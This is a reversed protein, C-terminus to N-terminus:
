PCPLLIGPVRMLRTNCPVWGPEMQIKEDVFFDLVNSSFYDISAGPVMGLQPILFMQSEFGPYNTNPFSAITMSYTTSNSVATATNWSYNSNVTQIMQRQYTGSTESAICTVGLPPPKVLSLHPMNTHVTPAATFTIDGIWYSVTNTLSDGGNSIFGLVAESNTEDPIGAFSGQFYQWGNTVALTQYGVM